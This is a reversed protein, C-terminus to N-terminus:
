LGLPTRLRACSRAAYRRRGWSWRVQETVLASVRGQKNGIFSKTRLSWFHEVGEEHSSSTRLMYPWHPWPSNEHRESSRPYLGLNPPMKMIEFQTVSKAGQRNSTGVCDSGTDGGGIVIVHKKEATISQEDPVDDGLVRRTSQRLLKDAFYVGQLDRGPIELDRKKGAGCSLLIADSTKQLESM